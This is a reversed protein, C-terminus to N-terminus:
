SKEMEMEEIQEFTLGTIKSVTDAAIGANLSKKAIEYREKEMGEEIGKKMGKMEAYDTFNRFDEYKYKSIVYNKM